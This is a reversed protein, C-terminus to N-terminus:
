LLLQLQRATKQFTEAGPEYPIYCYCESAKVDGAQNAICQPILKNIYSAICQPILKHSFFFFMFDAM